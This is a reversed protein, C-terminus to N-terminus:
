LNEAWRLELNNRYNREVLNSYSTMRDFEDSNLNEINNFFLNNTEIM